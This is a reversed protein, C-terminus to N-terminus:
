GWPIVEDEFGGPVESAFVERFSWDYVWTGSSPRISRAMELAEFVATEYPSISAEGSVAASFARDVSINVEGSSNTTRPAMIMRTEAKDGDKITLFEGPRCVKTNPPFGRCFASPWGQFTGRTGTYPGVVYWNVNTGNDTWNVPTGGDTWNVSTTLRYFDPPKETNIAQSRLRILDGGTFVRKLAEIYGAGEMHAVVSLSAMRRPVDHASVWRKGSNSVSRQVPHITTWESSVVRVPPWNYVKVM